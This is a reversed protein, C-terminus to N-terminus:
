EASRALEDLDPDDESAADDLEIQEPEGLDDDRLSELLAALLAERDVAPLTLVGATVDGSLM